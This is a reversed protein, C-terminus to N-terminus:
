ALYLDYGVFDDGDGLWVHLAGGPCDVSNETLRVCASDFAGIGAQDTIVLRGAAGTRFSVNNTEGAGAVITLTPPKEDDFTHFYGPDYAVMSAAAPQAVLVPVALTILLWATRM